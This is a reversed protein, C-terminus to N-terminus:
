GFRLGLCKKFPTLGTSSEDLILAGEVFPDKQPGVPQENQAQNPEDTHPNQGIARQSRDDRSEVDQACLSTHMWGEEEKSQPADNPDQPDDLLNHLRSM